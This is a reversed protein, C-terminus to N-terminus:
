LKRLVDKIVHEKDQPVLITTGDYKLQYDVGQRELEKVVAGSDEVSLDTYLTAMHPATVRVILFAFFAVLSITVATMAALRTAGLTRVFAVLGQM